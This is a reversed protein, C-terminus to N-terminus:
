STQQAPWDGLTVQVSRQQGDRIITLTISDGVHKSDLYTGVDDVSAIPHGDIATIVDGGTPTGGNASRSAGKLGAKDAPSGAMVDTILAGKTVSLGAQKAVDPTLTVGGIGLYAHQVTQGSSLQPLLQKAQNIPIAFGVGVSGRVPSEIATCVGIVEGNANFLPGGSNGPNIPADTQILGRLPRGANESYTRNTASVIGATVSHELGFPTGIAVVPDGIRVDDSNGLKAPHLAQGNTPVQILALDNGPDTGVVKATAQSGDAFTVQVSTTSAVVHNNTLIHGQQDLVIGSGEGEAQSPVGRPGNRTATVTISVVSDNAAQYVESAVTTAPGTLAAAQLTAGGKAAGTTVPANPATLMHSAVAAGGIGGGLTGLALGGALAGILVSRRTTQREFTPLGASRAAPAVDPAPTEASIMEETPQNTPEPSPAVDERREDVNPKGKQSIAPVAGGDDQRM